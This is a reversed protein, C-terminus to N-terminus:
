SNTTWGGGKRPQTQIENNKTFKYTEATRDIVLKM